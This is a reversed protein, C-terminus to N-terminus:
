NLISVFAKKRLFVEYDDDVVKSRILTSEDVDIMGAMVMTDNAFSKPKINTYYESGSRILKNSNRFEFYTLIIVTFALIFTEIALVLVQYGWKEESFIIIDAVIIPIYVFVYNFYTIMKLPRLLNKM